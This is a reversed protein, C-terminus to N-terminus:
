SVRIEQIRKGHSAFVGRETITLQTGAGAPALEYTWSGGWPLDLM